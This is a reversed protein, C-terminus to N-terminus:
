GSIGIGWFMAVGSGGPQEELQGEWEPMEMLKELIERTVIVQCVGTIPTGLPRPPLILL